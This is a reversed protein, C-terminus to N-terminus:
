SRSSSLLMVACSLVATVVDEHPELVNHFVTCRALSLTYKSCMKWNQQQSCYYAPRHSLFRGLARHKVPPFGLCYQTSSTRMRDLCFGPNSHCSTITHCLLVGIEFTICREPVLPLPSANRVGGRKREGLLDTQTQFFCEM